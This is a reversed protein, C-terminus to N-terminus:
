FQRTECNTRFWGTVPDLGVAQFKMLQGTLLGAPVTYLWTKGPNGIAGSGSFSIGGFAGTGDELVVTLAYGPDTCIPGLVTPLVPSGPFSMMVIYPVNAPVATTTNTAGLVLLTGAPTATLKRSFLAFTGNTQSGPTAATITIPGGVNTATVSTQAYGNADAIVPNTTSLTAGGSVTFNITGGPLPNSNTDLVRAVLPVAFAETAPGVQGGGSIAVVSNTPGLPRIRKLTGGTSPYTGPHHLCWLGGDPGQRLSVLGIFNTSWNTSDPQGAVAPAAVWSGTNVLRRVQGAFYDWYFWSGEYSAGFNYAGGPQNRYRPGSMASFWSGGQPIAIAPAQIVPLSGSCTQYTSNGERWPWGFNVLPLSGVSPYAYEDVEEVANQGVDGIYLSGTTQDIEFRVPNRLGHAIVLQDIGANASLPNNGPDLSSFSPATTGAGAPVAAVNIRMVCGLSSTTSQANCPTTADDGMSVYLMGDPGFRVSGGNHNFANDPTSTLVVRRTAPNLTVVTSTPNALDGTCEFRDLHMFADATSAYWVYVYGNTPFSPDAAIGLLGQESSTQVSPITGISVPAGGAYIQVLGARNALLVRGDPLFCFDHAAQLGSSILTDIVFGTPVNQATASTAVLAAVAASLLVSRLM